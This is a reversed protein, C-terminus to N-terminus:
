RKLAYDAEFMMQGLFSNEVVAPLFVARTQPGAPNIPDAPDLSFSPAATDHDHLRVTLAVALDSPLVFRERHTQTNVDLTDPTQLDRSLLLIRGTSGDVVASELPCVAARTRPPEFRLATSM